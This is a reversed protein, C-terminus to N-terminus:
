SNASLEHFCEDILRATAPLVRHNSGHITRVFCRNAEVLSQAKDLHGAHRLDTGLETSPLIQDNELEAQIVSGPVKVSLPDPLRPSNCVGPEWLDRRSLDGTVPSKEDTLRTRHSRPAWKWQAFLGPQRDLLGTWWRRFAAHTRLGAPVEERGLAEPLHQCAPPPSDHGHRHFRGYYNMWGRVIPNLWNALDNLTM